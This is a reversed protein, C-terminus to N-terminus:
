SRPLASRIAVLLAALEELRAVATSARSSPAREWVTLEGDEVKLSVKRPHGLLHQRVAPPVLRAAELGRSAGDGHHDLLEVRFADDFAPDGVEVDTRRALRDTIREPAVLFPPLGDVATTACLEDPRDRATNGSGKLPFDIRYLCVEIGDRVGTLHPKAASPETGWAAAQRCAFTTPLDREPHWTLGHAAAHARYVRQARRDSLAALAALAGVFGMVVVVTAVLAAGTSM